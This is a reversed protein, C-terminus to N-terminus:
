VPRGSLFRSTQRGVSDQRSESRLSRGAQSSFRRWYEGSWLSFARFLRFRAATKLAFVRLSRFRSFFLSFAARRLSETGRERGSKAGKARKANERGFFMAGEGRERRRRRAAGPAARSQPRLDAGASARRTPPRM